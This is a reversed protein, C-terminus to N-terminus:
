DLKKKPEATTQNTVGWLEMMSPLVVYISFTEFGDLWEDPTHPVHEGGNVAMCYALNEFITLDLASFEAEEREEESLGEAEATNVVANYKRELRRMDSILDRGFKARYIRPILASARLKVERGDIVVIKEM